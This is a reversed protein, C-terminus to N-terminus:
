SHKPLLSTKRFKILPAIICEAGPQPLLNQGMRWDISLRRLEGQKDEERYEHMHWSADETGLGFLQRM